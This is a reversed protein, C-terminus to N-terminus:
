LAHEAASRTNHLTGRGGPALDITQAFAIIAAKSFPTQTAFEAFARRPILEQEAFQNAEQEKAEDMGNGGEIFLEKKGHM